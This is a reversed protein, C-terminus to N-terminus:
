IEQRVFILYSGMFLIANIMMMLLLDPLAQRASVWANSRQYSFRPLDSWDVAAEDSAFWQRSGFANKDYFYQVLTQRYQRAAEFFHELGYLNTGLWAETALDFASAPSVRILFRDRQAPRMFIRTLAQQRVIWAREATKIRLPEIHQFFAKAHPVTTESEESLDSFSMAHEHFYRLTMPNSRFSPGYTSGPGGVNLRPHEGELSDNKLLQLRERDFQEWIQALEQFVARGKEEPNIKPNVAFLILNPYILVLFVWAFMCSMLATATRRTTASILLGMLYFVSLYLISTLYFGGIRIWDDGSLVISGSGSILIQTLILSITLPVVLTAMAGIYKALLIKGRSASTTMILRLTGKEHEGAVADYAYLLALLSLVVQFVVVLDISSLLNLFPNDMGHLGADWLTPVFARHVRVTNGLRKDLGRNFLSLPNPPRDVNLRLRSFTQTSVVEDHHSQVANDYLALRREYDYILVVTNAIVLALLVIMAVFFRYALLHALLERRILTTLM